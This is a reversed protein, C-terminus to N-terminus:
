RQPLLPITYWPECDLNLITILETPLFNLKNGATHRQDPVLQPTSDDGLASRYNSYSIPPMVGSIFISKNCRCDDTCPGQVQGASATAKGGEEGTLNGPLLLELAAGPLGRKGGLTAKDQERSRVNEGRHGRQPPAAIRLSELSIDTQNLVSTGPSKDHRLLSKLTSSVMARLLMDSHSNRELCVSLLPSLSTTLMTTPLIQSCPPRLLLACLCTTCQSPPAQPSPPHLVCTPPWPQPLLPCSISLYSFHPIAFSAAKWSKSHATAEWRVQQGEHLAQLSM